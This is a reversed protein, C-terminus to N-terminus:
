GSDQSEFARHRTEGVGFARLFLCCLGTGCIGWLARLVVKRGDPPVWGSKKGKGKSVEACSKTYM